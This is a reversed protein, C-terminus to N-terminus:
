FTSDIVSINKMELNNKDIDFKTRLVTCNELHKELGHFIWIFFVQLKREKFWDKDM